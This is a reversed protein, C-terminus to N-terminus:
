AQEYGDVITAGPQCESLLGDIFAPLLGYGKTLNAPCGAWSSGFYLLFTIDPYVENVARMVQKGVERVRAAYEEPTKEDSHRRGAYHFPGPGTYCEPDLHIGRLGAEKAARALDRFNAALWDTSDFWDFTGDNGSEAVLFNDTFRHFPTARLQAVQEALKARHEDSFPGWFPYYMDGNLILGDFPLKEMDAIRERIEACSPIHWGSAILKKGVM